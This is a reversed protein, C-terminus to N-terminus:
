EKAKTGSIRPTTEQTKDPHLPWMHVNFFGHMGRAVLSYFVWPYFGITALSVYAGTVRTSDLIARKSGKAFRQM